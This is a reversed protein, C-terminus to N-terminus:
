VKMGFFSQLRKKRAYLYGLVNYEGPYSKPGSKEDCYLQYSTVGEEDSSVEISNQMGPGFKRSIRIKEIKGTEECQEIIEFHNLETFSVIDRIDEAILKILKNQKYIVSSVIGVTNSLEDIM